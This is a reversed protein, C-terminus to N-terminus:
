VFPAAKASTASLGCMFSVILSLRALRALPGAEPLCWLIRSKM